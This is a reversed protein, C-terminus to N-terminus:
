SPEKFYSICARRFATLNKLVRISSPLGNYLQAGRFQLTNRGFDTQPRFLHLKDRGRTCSYGFSSNSSFKSLLYVPAAKLLCKHIQYVVFVCRQQYLNMWNLLNLCYQSSTRPPQRLIVRMAYNQVRQLNDSSTKSCFHWVVCCYTLYPLVFANYLTILVNSSLYLSVKRIAALASLSRRRVHGIQESWSLGEDVIIGLYKVSKSLQLVSNNLLFQISSLQHRRRRRALLMSQSKSVNVTFGNSTM